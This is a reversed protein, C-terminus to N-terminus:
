PLMHGAKLYLEYWEERTLTVRSAAAIEDIRNLSTTGVVTQIQAPHRMIWAVAIATPTVSYKDAMRQLAHNLDGFREYDGVFVGSFFGHQFPSWAQITIDHLRCYDLVSGDRDLSDETKMNVEIGNAIMGCVPISLQLQNFELPQRVYRRLLEIQMPKHNSVGFHRVKGSSQLIDFAEAVEEPEVLADPRHMLLSDLYGCGLRSLIGGVANLIYDKSMNYMVGPVISCKSQIFVAERPTGLNRMATGFKEECAGGGYIDAHDFFNLGLDMCHRIYNEVETINKDAIRMCGMAIAPVVTSTQKLTITKM